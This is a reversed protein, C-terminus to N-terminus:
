CIQLPTFGHLESYEDFQGNGTRPRRLGLPVDVGVRQLLHPQGVFQAEVVHPRDLVVEELLVRGAGSRNRVAHAM